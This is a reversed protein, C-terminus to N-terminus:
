KSSNQSDPGFYSSYGICIAVTAYYSFYGPKEVRHIALIAISAYSIGLISMIAM